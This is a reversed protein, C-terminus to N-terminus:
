RKCEFIRIIIIIYSVYMIHSCRRRQAGGFLVRSGALHLVSIFLHKHHCVYATRAGVALMCCLRRRASAACPACIIEIGDRAREALHFRKMEARENRPKHVRTKITRRPTRANPTLANKEREGRNFTYMQTPHKRKNQRGYQHTHTHTHQSRARSSQSSKFLPILNRPDNAARQIRLSAIKDNGNETAHTHNIIWIIFM